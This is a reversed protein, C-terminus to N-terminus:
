VFWSWDKKQPRPMPIRKWVYQITLSLLYVQVQFPHVAILPSLYLQSAAANGPLIDLGTGTRVGAQHLTKVLHTCTSARGTRWPTPTGALASEESTVLCPSRFWRSPSFFFVHQDLCARCKSKFFQHAGQLSQFYFKFPTRCKVDCIFTPLADTVGAATTRRGRPLVWISKPIFQM